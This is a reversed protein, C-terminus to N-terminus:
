LCCQSSSLLPDADPAAVSPPPSWLSITLAVDRSLWLRPRAPHHLRPDPLLPFWLTLPLLIIDLRVLLEDTDSTGSGDLWLLRGWRPPLPRIRVAFTKSDTGHVSISPWGARRLISCLSACHLTLKFSSTDSCDAENTSLTSCTIHRRMNSFVPNDYKNVTDKSLLSILHRPTHTRTGSLAYLVHLRCHFWPHIDSPFISLPSLLLPSHEFHHRTLGQVVTEYM